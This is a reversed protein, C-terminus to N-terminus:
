TAGPYILQQRCPKLYVVFLATSVNDKWIASIDPHKIRKYAGEDLRKLIINTSRDIEIKLVDTQANLKQDFTGQNANLLEALSRSLDLFETRNFGPADKKVVKTDTSNTPSPTRGESIAIAREFDDANQSLGFAEGNESVFKRVDRERDSRFDVVRTLM